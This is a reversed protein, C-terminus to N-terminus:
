KVRGLERLLMIFAEPTVMSIDEYAALSLLDADRTIIYAANAKVACAVIYDDDPDRVIGTLHPLDTVLSFRLRLSQCFEVVDDDTYTRVRRLRPYALVHELEAIIEEALLCLFAGAVAHRLLEASVGGPTLFASVLVGSDLVANPVDNPM